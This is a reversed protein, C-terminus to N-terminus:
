SVPTMASISRTSRPLGLLPRLGSISSRSWSNYPWRSLKFPMRAPAFFVAGSMKENSGFRTPWGTSPPLLGFLPLVADSM